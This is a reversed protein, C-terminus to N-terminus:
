RQALTSASDATSAPTATQLISPWTSSCPRPVPSLFRAPSVIACPCRTPSRWSSQETPPFKAAKVTAVPLPRTPSSSAPCLIRAGLRIRSTASRSCLMAPPQCIPPPQPGVRALLTVQNKLNISLTAGANVSIGPPFLAAVALVSRARAPHSLRWRHGTRSRPHPRVRTTLCHNQLALRVRPETFPESSTTAMSSLLLHERQHARPRLAPRRRRPGRHLGASPENLFSQLEIVRITYYDRALSVSPSGSPVEPATFSDTLRGNAASGFVLRDHDFQPFTSADVPDLGITAPSGSLEYLASTSDVSTLGTLHMPDATYPAGAPTVLRIRTVTTTALGSSGTLYNSLPISAAPTSGLPIAQLGPYRTLIAEFAAMVAVPDILLGDSDYFRAAGAFGLDAWAEALGTFGTAVITQNPFFVYRPVPRCSLGHNREPRTPDSTELIECYLRGLRLWAQDPVTLLVGPSDEATGDALLLSVPLRQGATISIFAADLPAAWNATSTITMIPSDSSSSPSTDTVTFSPSTAGDPSWDPALRPMGLGFAQLEGYQLAQAIQTANM